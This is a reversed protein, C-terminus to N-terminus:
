CEKERVALPEQFVITTWAHFFSKTAQETKGSTEYRSEGELSGLAHTIRTRWSNRCFLHAPNEVDIHNAPYIIQRKEVAEQPTTQPISHPKRCQTDMFPAASLIPLITRFMDTITEKWTTSLTTEIPSKIEKSLYRYNSAGINCTGTGHKRKWQITSQTFHMVYMPRFHSTHKWYVSSESFLHHSICM